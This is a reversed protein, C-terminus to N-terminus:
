GPQGQHNLKHAAAVHHVLQAAGGQRLVHVADQGGEGAQADLHVLCRLVREDAVGGLVRPCAAWWLCPRFLAVRSLVLTLLLLAQASGSLLSETLNSTGASTAARFCDYTRQPENHSSLPRKRQILSASAANVRPVGPSRVVQHVLQNAFDQRSVKSNSETNSSIPLTTHTRNCAQLRAKTSTLLTTTIYSLRVAVVLSAKRARRAKV